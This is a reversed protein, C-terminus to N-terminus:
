CTKHNPVPMWRGIKRPKGDDMLVGRHDLVAQHDLIARNGYMIIWNGPWRLDPEPPREARREARGDVDPIGTDLQHLFNADIGISIDPWHGEGAASERIRLALCFGTGTVGALGVQYVFGDGVYVGRIADLIKVARYAEKVLQGSGLWVFHAAYEIAKWASAEAVKGATERFLSRGVPRGEKHRERQLDTDRIEFADTCAAGPEVEVPVGQATPRDDPVEFLAAQATTRKRPVTFEGCKDGVSEPSIIKDLQTRVTSVKPAHEYRNNSGHEGREIGM